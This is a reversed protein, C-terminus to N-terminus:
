FFMHGWIFVGASGGRSAEVMSASDCIVVAVNVVTSSLFPKRLTHIRPGAGM